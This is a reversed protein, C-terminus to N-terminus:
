RARPAKDPMPWWCNPPKPPKPWCRQLGRSWLRRAKRAAGPDGAHACLGAAGCPQSRFRGDLRGAGEESRGGAREPRHGSLGQGHAPDAHTRPRGQERRRVRRASAGLEDLGSGRVFGFGGNIAAHVREDTSKRRALTLIKGLVRQASCRPFDRFTAAVHLHKYSTM